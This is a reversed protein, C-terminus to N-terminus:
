PWRRHSAADVPRVCPLVSRLRLVLLFSKGFPLRGCMAVLPRDLLGSLVAANPSRPSEPCHGKASLHGMCARAFRRFSTTCSNWQLRV